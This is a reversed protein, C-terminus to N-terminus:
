QYGTSLPLYIYIYMYVMFSHIRKTFWALASRARSTWRTGHSWDPARLRGHRRVSKPVIMPVQLIITHKVIFILILHMSLSSISIQIHRVITYRWINPRQHPFHQSLILKPTLTSESSGMHIMHCMRHLLFVKEQTHSELICLIIPLNPLYWIDSEGCLSSLRVIASPYEPVIQSATHECCEVGCWPFVCVHICIYLIYIYICYVCEELPLHQHACSLEIWLTYQVHFCHFAWPIAALLGAM